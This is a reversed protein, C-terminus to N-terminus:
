SKLLPSPFETVTERPVFTVTFLIQDNRAEIWGDDPWQFHEDIFVTYDGAPMRFDTIAEAVEGPLVRTTFIQFLGTSRVAGTFRRGWSALGPKESLRLRILAYQPVGPCMWFVGKGQKAKNEIGWRGWEHINEDSGFENPLAEANLFGILQPNHDYPDICAFIEGGLVRERPSFQDRLGPLIDSLDETM